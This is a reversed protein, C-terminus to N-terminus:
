RDGIEFWDYNDKDFYVFIPSAPNSSPFTLRMDGNSYHDVKAVGLSHYILNGRKYITITM